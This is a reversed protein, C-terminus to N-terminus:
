FKLQQAITIEKRIYLLISGKNGEELVGYRYKYVFCVASKCTKRAREETIYLHNKVFGKV